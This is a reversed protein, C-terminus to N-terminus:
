NALCVNSGTRCIIRHLDFDEALREECEEFVKSDTKGEGFCCCSFISRNKFWYWYLNENHKNHHKNPHLTKHLFTTTRFKSYDAVCYAAVGIILGWFGGVNGLVDYLSGVSRGHTELVGNMSLEMTLLRPPDIKNSKLETTPNVYKWYTGEHYGGM